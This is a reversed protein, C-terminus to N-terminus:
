LAVRVPALFDAFQGMVLNIEETTLLDAEAPHAVTLPNLITIPRAMSRAMTIRATTSLLPTRHITGRVDIIPPIAIVVFGLLFILRPM